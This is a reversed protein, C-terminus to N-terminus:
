ECLLFFPAVWLTANKKVFGDFKFPLIIIIVLSLIRIARCESCIKFPINTPNAEIALIGTINKPFILLAPVTM